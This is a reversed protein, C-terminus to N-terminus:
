FWDSLFGTALSAAYDFSGAAAYNGANANFDLTEHSGVNGGGAFANASTYALALDPDTAVASGFGASQSAIGDLVFAGTYVNTNTANGIAVGIAQADALFSNNLTPLTYAV